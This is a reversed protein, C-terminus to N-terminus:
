KLTWSDCIKVAISVDGFGFVVGVVGVFADFVDVYVGFAVFAHVGGADESIGAVGEPVGM